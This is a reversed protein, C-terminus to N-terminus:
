PQLLKRELLMYNYQKVIIGDNFELFVLMPYTSTETDKYYGQAAAYHGDASVFCGNPIPSESSQELKSKYDNRAFCSNVVLKLDSKNMVRWDSKAVDIYKADEAFCSLYSEVDRNNFATQWKMMTASSKEVLEKASNSGPDLTRPDFSLLLESDSFSGGYYDYSFSILDNDLAYVSALPFEGKDTYSTITVHASFSGDPSVFFTGVDSTNISEWYSASKSMKDVYAKDYSWGPALADFGITDDSYMASLSEGDKDVWGTYFKLMISEANEVQTRTTNSEGVCAALGLVLVILSSILVAKLKLMEYKM